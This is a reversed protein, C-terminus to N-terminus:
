IGEHVIYVRRYLKIQMKNISEVQCVENLQNVTSPRIKFACWMYVTFPINLIKKINALVDLAIRVDDLAEM